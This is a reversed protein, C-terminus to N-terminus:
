SDHTPLSHFAVYWSEYGLSAAARGAFEEVITKNEEGFGDPYPDCCMLLGLFAKFEVETMAEIDEQAPLKKRVENLNKIASDMIDVIKKM